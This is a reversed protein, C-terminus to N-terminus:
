RQATITLNIENSKGTAGQWILHHLIGPCVCVVEQVDVVTHSRLQQVELM